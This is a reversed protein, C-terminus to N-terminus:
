KARKLRSAIEKRLDPDNQLKLLAERAEPRRSRMLNGVILVRSAGLRRDNILSIMKPLDDSTAMGCLAAILSDQLQQNTGVLLSTALAWVKDWALTRAERVALARAIGELNRSAYLRDLHTVLVPIAKPYSISTNVLDWISSVQLGVGNLAEVLPAEDRRLNESTAALQREAEAHRAVWEPDAALQQM